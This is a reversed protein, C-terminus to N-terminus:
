SDLGSRRPQSRPIRELRTIGLNCHRLVGWHLFLLGSELVSCPQSGIFKWLGLLASQNPWDAAVILVNLDEGSKM